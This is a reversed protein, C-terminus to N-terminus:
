RHSIIFRNNSVDARIADAFSDGLFSFAPWWDSTFRTRIRVPPTVNAKVLSVRMMTFRRQEAIGVRQGERVGLGDSDRDMDNWIYRERERERERRVKQKVRAAIGETERPM